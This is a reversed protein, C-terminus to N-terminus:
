TDLINYVQKGEEDWITWHESNEHDEFMINGSIKGEGEVALQLAEEPSDAEIEMPTIQIKEVDVIYRM